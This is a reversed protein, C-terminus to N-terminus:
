RERYFYCLVGDKKTIAKKPGLTNSPGAGESNGKNNSLGAVESNSKHTYTKVKKGKDSAFSSAYLAIHGKDKKLKEEEAVLRAILDNVFWTEDQSSYNTKIIGFDSPLTNLAQHVICATPIEVNLVQFKTQLDVMRLVYDIVGGFGDYKMTFLTQMHTGIEANPSVRNRAMLAEM